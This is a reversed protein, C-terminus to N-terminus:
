NKLPPVNKFIIKGEYCKKYSLGVKGIKRHSRSQESYIVYTNIYELYSELRVYCLLKNDYIFSIFVHSMKGIVIQDM